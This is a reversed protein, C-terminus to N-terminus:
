SQLNEDNLGRITHDRNSKEHEVRQIAMELEEIDKKIVTNGFELTKRDQAAQQRPQECEVLRTIASALQVELDAKMAAIKAQTETYVGLNSQETEM